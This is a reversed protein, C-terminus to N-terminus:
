CGHTSGGMKNEFTAEEKHGEDRERCQTGTHGTRGHTWCYKDRPIRRRQRRRDRPPGPAPAPASAPAPTPSPTPTPLHNQQISTSHQMTRQMELMMSQMQAMQQILAPLLDNQQQAANATQSPPTHYNPLPTTNEPAAM